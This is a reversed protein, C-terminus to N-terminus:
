GETPNTPTASAIDDIRRLAEAREHATVLIARIEDGKESGSAYGASPTAGPDESGDRLLVEQELSRLLEAVSDPGVMAAALVSILIERHANLKGEITQPAFAM